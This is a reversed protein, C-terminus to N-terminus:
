KNTKVKTDKQKKINKQSKHVKKAKNTKNSIIKVKSGKNLNMFGTVIVKDGLKLEGSVVVFYNDQVLGTKINIIKIKNDKTVLYVQETNQGSRVAEKPVLIANKDIGVILKIKAYMGPLLNMDPNPISASLSITSSEPNAQNNLYRLFGKYVIISDVGNINKETVYTIIKLNDSTIAKKLRLVNKEPVTFDINLPDIKKINSLVNSSDIVNGAGTNDIGIIGDIPSVITCNKLNIKDIMLQAESIKVNSKAVDLATKYKEFQPTSIANAILLPKEEKLTLIHMNLQAISKALNAEDNLVTAKYKGSEIEFLVQGKKVLSGSKFCVKEIMGTVQAKLDVNESAKFIGYSNIYIPVDKQVIKKVLVRTGPHVPKKSAKKSPKLSHKDSHNKTHKQINKKHDAKSCSSLFFIFTVCILTMTILSNKKFYLKM